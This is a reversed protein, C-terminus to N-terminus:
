PAHILVGHEHSPTQVTLDLPAHPRLVMCLYPKLGQRVASIEIDLHFSPRVSNDYFFFRSCIFFTGTYNYILDLTHQLVEGINLLRHINMQRLCLAIRIDICFLMVKILDANLHSVTMQVCLLDPTKM